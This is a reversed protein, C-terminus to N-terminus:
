SSAMQRATVAELESENLGDSTTVDVPDDYWYGNEWGITDGGRPEEPHGVFPISCGALALALVLGLAVLGRRRM